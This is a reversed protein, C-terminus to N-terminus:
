QDSAELAENLLKEAEPTTKGAENELMIAKAFAARAKMPTIDKVGVQKYIALLEKNTM